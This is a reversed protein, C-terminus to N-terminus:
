ARRSRRALLGVGLAVLLATGPEPVTFLLLGVSGDTFRTTAVFQTADDSADFDIFTAITRVDGGGLDVSMDQGTILGLGGQADRYYFRSRNSGDTARFLLAGDDAFSLVDFGNWIEGPLLPNADGERALLMVSGGADPVLLVKDDLSTVGGVGLALGTAIVLDGADNLVEPTGGFAGFALGPSGPIADGERYRLTIDNPGNAIWLGSNDAGTVGGPGVVLDAEFALQGADNFSFFGGGPLFQITTGPAMDPAQGNVRAVEGFGGAGDPMFITPDSPGSPDDTTGAAFAVEGAENISNIVGGTITRTPDGPVPDGSVYVPALGSGPEFRYLAGSVTFPPAFTTIVEVVQGADNWDPLADALAGVVLTSGPFGPAPDGERAVVTHGASPAFDAVLQNNLNTVGGPGTRLSAEYGVLGSPTIERVFATSIEAGAPGIPSAGPVVVPAPAGGAGVDWTWVGQGGSSVRATVAVAGADNVHGGISTFSGGPTGAAADGVFAIRAVSVSLAAAPDSVLVLAILCLLPRRM